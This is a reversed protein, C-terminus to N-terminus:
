KYNRKTEKNTVRQSQKLVTKFLKVKLMEKLKYKELKKKVHKKKM